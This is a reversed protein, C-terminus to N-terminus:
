LTEVKKELEEIRDVMQQVEEPVNSTTQNTLNKLKLIYPQNLFNLSQSM